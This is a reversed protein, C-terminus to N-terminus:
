RLAITVQFATWQSGIMLGFPIPGGSTWVNAPVRVNVQLLGPVSGFVGGAYLVEGQRAEGEVPYESDFFWASVPLNTRPLVDSLIQGDAVGPAAEGGGTGYLTLISGRPAPNSPSNLSGDENLIAGQGRGSSDLSFIGPRSPLVPMTAVDSRVGQYEVQVNVSTRGAVAYPVIASSQKDSVYLLPAPVDNFLIRTDALTTTLRRDETLRLRTLEPPGM